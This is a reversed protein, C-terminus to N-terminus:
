PGVLWELADSLMTPASPSAPDRGWWQATIATGAVSLAMAGGLLVLVMQMGGPPTVVFATALTATTAM